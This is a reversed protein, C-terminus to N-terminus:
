CVTCSFIKWFEGFNLGFEGYFEGSFYFDRNHHIVLIITNKDVFIKRGVLFAFFKFFRSLEYFYHM